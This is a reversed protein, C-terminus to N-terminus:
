IQFSNCNTHDTKNEAMATMALTEDGYRPQSHAQTCEDDEPSAIKASSHLTSVVESIGRRTLHSPLRQQLLSWLHGLNTGREASVAIFLNADQLGTYMRIPSMSM